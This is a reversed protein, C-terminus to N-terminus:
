EPPRSPASRAAAGPGALKDRAFGALAVLAGCAYIIVYPDLPLRFRVKSIMVAHVLTYAIFVILVLRAGDSRALSRFLWLIGFPLLVGYSLLSLWKGKGVAPRVETMPQPYLRWLNAAKALSLRVFRGPESAAHELGLHLLVSDRVAPNRYRIHVERLEDYMDQTLRNGRTATADPHNGLWFNYGGNASVAVPRGFEKYNRYSWGGLAMAVPLAFLVAIAVRRGLHDRWTARGGGSSDGPGKAQGPAAGSAQKGARLPAFPWALWIAALAYAPVASPTTLSSYAAFLGAFLAAALGSALASTRLARVKAVLCLYLVWALLFTQVAVPYLTGATYVALPYFAAAAAALIAARRNLLRAGIFYVLLCSLAGLISQAARAASADAGLVRYVAALFYPYGPPWHVAPAGSADAYAWSHQMELALVHYERADPWPIEDGLTRVYGIRLALAAAFIAFLIVAGFLRSGPSGM